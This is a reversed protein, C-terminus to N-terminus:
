IGFDNSQYITKRIDVKHSGSFVYKTLNVGPVNMHVLQSDAEM